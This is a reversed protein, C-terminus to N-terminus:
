SSKGNSLGAEGPKILNPQVRRGKNRQASPSAHPSRAAVQAKWNTSVPMLPGESRPRPNSANTLRSERAIRSAATDRLYRPTNSPEQFVKMPSRPTQPGPAPTTMRDPIPLKPGALAQERLNLRSPINRLTKPATRTSPQKLFKTEKAASTPLDDFIELENGDGFYRKRQPKTLAKKAHPLMSSIPPDIRRSTRSPTDPVHVNSLRSFSRPPPSAARNPDSDRRSIYASSKSAVHHSQAALGAPLFPVNPKPSPGYNQKMVPMSRKSRLLQAHTTTPQPRIRTVQAAGSELVPELRSAPKAGSVPRPIRTTAPKDTFTLTTIPTRTTIPLALKSQKQKINKHLTLKKPDFVEPGGVDLDNFFDDDKELFNAAKNATTVKPHEILVEPEPARAAETAQRKKLMAQLDVPGEPLELGRLDDDESEATQSGLSPSMASASSSRNRGDKRTGAFRIGLSGEAWDEDFDDMEEEKALVAPLSLAETNPKLSLGGASPFDMDDGWDDDLKQRVAKKGLRKITGGLLASSPVNAPIPVGAQKASQIAHSISKDDNPTLSVQWDEDGINSESNVSLRSSLSTQVTSVSHTFLDGQFDVDDDWNEMDADM